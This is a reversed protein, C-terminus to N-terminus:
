GIRVPRLYLTIAPLLKGNQLSVPRVEKRCIGVLCDREKYPATATYHAGHYGHLGPCPGHPPPTPTEVLWLTASPMIQLTM